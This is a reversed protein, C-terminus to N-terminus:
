TFDPSRRASISVSLAVMSNSDTSSPYIPLIKMASPVSFMGTFLVIATSIASLSVKEMLSNESTRATFSTAWVSTLPDTERCRM